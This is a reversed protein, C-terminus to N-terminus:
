YNKMSLTDLITTAVNRLFKVDERAEELEDDTCDFWDFNKLETTRQMLLNAACKYKKKEDAVEDFNEALKYEGRNVGNVIAGKKKLLYLANRIITNDKKGPQLIGQKYAAERIEKITHINKDSLLKCILNQVKKNMTM